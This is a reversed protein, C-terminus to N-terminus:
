HGSASVHQYDKSSSWTGGWGWGAATFARVPVSSATLMGPRVPTRTVYSAASPPSFRAGSVWPNERPNIDIARGYAHQSWRTTGAVRRCNFASTNDADMSARDSGGFDDVLRMSRIPFRDDWMSEFASAVVGAADRHVVLEGLHERGDFGMHSVRVYVLSSLPVPCGARYSTPTMRAALDPGIRTTTFQFRDRRAVEEWYRTAVAAAESLQPEAMPANGQGVWWAQFQAPTCASAVVTVAVLLLLRTRM